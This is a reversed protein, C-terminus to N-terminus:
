LVPSFTFPHASCHIWFEQRNGLILMGRRSNRSLFNASPSGSIPWTGACPTLPSTSQHGLMGNNVLALHVAGTGVSDQAATQHCRWIVIWDQANCLMGSVLHWTSPCPCKLTCLILKQHVFKQLPSSFFMLVLASLTLM